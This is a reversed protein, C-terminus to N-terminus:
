DPRVEFHLHPGTVNGTRAAAQRVMWLTCPRLREPPGGVTGICQGAKVTEGPKPYTPM